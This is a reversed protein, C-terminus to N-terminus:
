TKLMVILGQVSTHLVSYGGQSKGDRHPCGFHGNQSLFAIAIELMEYANRMRMM